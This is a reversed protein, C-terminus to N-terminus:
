KGKLPCWYAKRWLIYSLLISLYVDYMNGQVSLPTTGKRVNQLRKFKGLTHTHACVLKRNSHLLNSCDYHRNSSTMSLASQQNVLSTSRTLWLPEESVRGTKPIYINQGSEWLLLQEWSTVTLFYQSWRSLKRSRVWILGRHLNKLNQHALQPIRSRKGCVLFAEYTLNRWKNVSSGVLRSYYARKRLDRRARM